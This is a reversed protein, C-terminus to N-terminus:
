WKKDMRQKNEIVSLAGDVDLKNQSLEKSLQETLKVAMGVGDILGLEYMSKHVNGERVHKNILEQQRDPYDILLKYKVLRWADSTIFRGIEDSLKQHYEM